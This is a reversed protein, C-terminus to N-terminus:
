SKSENGHLLVGADGSPENKEPMAKCIHGIFNMQQIIKKKQIHNQTHAELHSQSLEAEFATVLRRRENIPM